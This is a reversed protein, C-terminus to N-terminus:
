DVQTQKHVPTRNSAGLNQCRRLLYVIQDVVTNGQRKKDQRIKNQKTKRQGTKQQRTHQRTKQQTTKHKTAQSQEKDQTTKAQSTKWRQLNIFLLKSCTDIPNIFNDFTVRFRASVM